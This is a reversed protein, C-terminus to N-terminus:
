AAELCSIGDNVTPKKIDNENVLDVKVDYYIGIEKGHGILEDNEKKLSELM